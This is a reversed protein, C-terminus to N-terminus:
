KLQDLNEKKIKTLASEEIKRVMERSINMLQAIEERSIGGRDAVDLACTDKLEQIGLFPFILRAKGESLWDVMLHYRCGIWPCPRKSNRCDARTVPRSSVLDVEQKEDFELLKELNKLELVKSGGKRHTTKTKSHFHTQGRKRSKKRQGSM